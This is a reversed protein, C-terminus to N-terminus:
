IFLVKDEKAAPTKGSAEFHTNECVDCSECLGTIDPPCSGPDGKMATGEPNTM